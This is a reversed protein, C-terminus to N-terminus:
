YHSLNVIFVLDKGTCAYLILCSKLEKVEVLWGGLMSLVHNEMSQESELETPNM